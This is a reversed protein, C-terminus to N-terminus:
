ARDTKAHHARCPRCITRCLAFNLVARFITWMHCLSSRFSAAIIRAATSPKVRVQEWATM